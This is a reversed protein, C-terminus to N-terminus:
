QAPPPRDVPLHRLHIRFPVDDPEAHAEREPNDAFVPDSARGDVRASTHEPEPSVEGERGPPPASQEPPEASLKVLADRIGQPPQLSGGLLRCPCVLGRSVLM